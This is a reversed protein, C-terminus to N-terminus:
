RQLDNRQNVAASGAGGSVRPPAHLQQVIPKSPNFAKSNQPTLAQMFEYIDSLSKGGPLEKAKKVAISSPGHGTGTERIPVRMEATRSLTGLRSLEDPSFILALKKNTIQNLARKLDAGSFVPEDLTNKAAASTAKMMLHQVTAGKVDAWAQKGADIHKATGSHLFNKLNALSDYDGSLVGKKFINESANKNDLLDKILSKNNIDYQDVKARRLSVERQSKLARAEKFFDDGAVRMVDDDLLDKMKRIQQRGFSNAGEYLSNLHKRVEEATEVSIKGQIKWDAMVGRRELEGHISSMVGGTADNDKAHAKVYSGLRGLKINKADPAASRAKQYLQIIGQDYEEIRGVVVGRVSEGMEYTDFTRGGTSEGLGVFGKALEVDQQDVIERMPGDNKILEQQHQFDDASRTVNARTPTVGAEIFENYRLADDLNLDAGATKIQELAGETFKGADDFLKESFGTKVLYALHPAILGAAAGVGTNVLRSDGEDVYTAGGAVGGGAAGTMTRKLMGGAVGGPLTAMPGVEGVFQAVENATDNTGASYADTAMNMTEYKRSLEALAQEAGEVGFMQQAQRYLQEVGAGTNMVGQAVNRGLAATQSDTPEPMFAQRYDPTPPQMTEEVQVGLKAYFEKQDVNSYFKKHLKGALEDDSFKDYQPYNKRFEALDM